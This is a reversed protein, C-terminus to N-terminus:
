RRESKVLLLGFSPLNEEFFLNQDTFHYKAVQPHSLPRRPKTIVNQVKVNKELKSKYHKTRFNM